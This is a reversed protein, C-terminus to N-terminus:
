RRAAHAWFDRMLAIPAPSSVEVQSLLITVMGTSPVVHAATGTGGVWGYRGPVNWPDIVAVDIGGGFGWGQGDLFPKSAARQAATTHDTLMLRISEASLLQHEDSALVRAFRHLDDATSVLGGAGSAFAPLRNWQGDQGDVLEGASYYSTLRERKAAPVAFATDVMGLPEFLREELFEPLPCNAVRSVLVGQIDSSTNYLWESGPHHLLPIRSLAAMWDDPAPVLQPQPPGQKLESFLPQVAPLSMESPFGHGSHSTLLDLVTIPRSAPVVDDIPSEPTRVVVPSGLEPLWRAVPDSLALRGEDVLVMVAAAMIPKTLSAIRFISDRAMSEGAAAVEIDDGKAVLAVAGPIAGRDVHEGLVRRLDNM